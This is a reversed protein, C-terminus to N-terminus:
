SKRYYSPVIVLPGTRKKPKPKTEVLRDSKHLVNEGGRDIVVNQIVTEGPRAWLVAILAAFLVLAALRV